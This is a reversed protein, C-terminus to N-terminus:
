GALKAKAADPVDVKTSGVDKIETTTTTDRAIDNGNFSMSGTLHQELKTIAGNSITITVTGKPDKIEPAPPADAGAAPAPGPRRFTLADKAAAESLDATYGTDTKKINELKGALDTIQDAPSKFARVRGPIMMAPSFGGANPDAAKEMDEATTWTGEPTKIVSKSGKAVVDYAAQRGPINYTTYGDKETKGNVPGGGGFGRGGGANATTTTWSYSPSDALAKAAASIDDKPDAFAAMSLGAVVAMTTFLTRRLM